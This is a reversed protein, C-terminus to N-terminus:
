NIIQYFWVSILAGVLALNFFILFAALSAEDRERQDKSIGAMHLRWRVEDWVEQGAEVGAPSGQVAIITGKL